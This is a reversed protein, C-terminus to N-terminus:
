ASAGRGDVRDLAEAFRGWEHRGARLQLARGRKVLEEVAALAAELRPAEQASYADCGASARHSEAHQRITALVNPLAVAAAKASEMRHEETLENLKQGLLDETLDEIRVVHLCREVSRAIREDEHGGVVYWVGDAKSVELCPFGQAALWANAQAANM